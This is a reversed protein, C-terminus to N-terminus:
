TKIINLKALAAISHETVINIKWEGKEYICQM